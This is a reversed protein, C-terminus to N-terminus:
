AWVLRLRSGLRRTQLATEVDVGVRGGGPLPMYLEVLNPVGHVVDPGIHSWEENRSLPILVQLM